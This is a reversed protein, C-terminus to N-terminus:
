SDTDLIVTYGRLTDPIMYAFLVYANLKLAGYSCEVPESDNEILTLRELSQFHYKLEPPKVGENDLHLEVERSVLWDSLDGACAPGGGKLVTKQVQELDLKSYNFRFM